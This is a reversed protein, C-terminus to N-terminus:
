DAFTRFIAEGKEATARRPDGIHGAASREKTIWGRMAPKFAHDPSVTQVQSQDGVLDPRLRWMMSTEWECAHGMETQVISPEADRPNGGLRCYNVFILLLDNRSRYRQRAEFIAQHCPVDNGRHGTVFALR